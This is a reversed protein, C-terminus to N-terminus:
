ENYLWAYVVALVLAGVMDIVLTKGDHVTFTRYVGFGTIASSLLSVIFVKENM